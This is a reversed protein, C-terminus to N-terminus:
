YNRSCALHLNIIASCDCHVVLNTYKLSRFDHYYNRRGPGTVFLDNLAESTTPDIRPGASSGVSIKSVPM